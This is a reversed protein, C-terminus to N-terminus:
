RLKQNAPGKEKQCITVVKYGRDILKTSLQYIHSKVGGPQLFFFESVMTINYPM